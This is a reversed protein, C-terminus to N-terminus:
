VSIAELLQSGISTSPLIEKVIEHRIQILDPVSIKMENKYSKGKLENEVFYAVYCGCNFEDQQQTCKEVYFIDWSDEVKDDDCLNQGFLSRLIIRIQHFRHFM